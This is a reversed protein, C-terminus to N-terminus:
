NEIKLGGNVKRSKLWVVMRGPNEIRLEENTIRLEDFSWWM